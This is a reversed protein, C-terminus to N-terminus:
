AAREVQVLFDNVTRIYAEREEIFAMHSSREFIVLESGPMRQHMDTMHAPTAEDYRGCTLLTPLRIEQLRGTVDWNKLNGTVPGFESPGWMTNYVQAGFGPGFAQEVGDPWPDARCVHRKYFVAMAGFWEPCAFYAKAEHHDLVRQVDDPLQRRLENADAIWRSVSPPSSSLILSQLPPQRDLVYQLSLWGGWSNGFLHIRELGLHDRVASLEEIARDLTWLSADDPRESNGCGLQDYFVVTRRDALDELNELYDHPIGPGGHLCLLPIGGEGVMRYWVKGGPVAIFGEKVRLQPTVV